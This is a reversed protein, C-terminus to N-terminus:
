RRQVRYRVPIARIVLCRRCSNGAALGRVAFVDRSRDSDKCGDEPPLLWSGCDARTFSSRSGGRAWSCLMLRDLRSHRAVAVAPAPARRKHQHYYHCHHRVTATTSCTASTYSSAKPPLWTPSRVQLCIVLFAGRTSSGKGQSMDPLYNFLSFRASMPVVAQISSTDEYHQPEGTLSSLLDGGTVLEM